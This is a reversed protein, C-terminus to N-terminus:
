GVGGEVLWNFVLEVAKGMKKYSERRLEEAEKKYQEVVKEKEGAIKELYERELDGFDVAEAAKILDGAKKKAEAIIREAEGRADLIRKEAEREIELLIDIESSM